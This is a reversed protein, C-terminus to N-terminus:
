ARIFANGERMITEDFVMLGVGILSSSKQKEGEIVQISSAIEPITRNDLVQKIRNTLYNVANRSESGVVICHPHLASAITAITSAFPEFSEELLSKALRDGDLAAKFITDAHIRKNSRLCSEIGRELWQDAKEEIARTGVLSELCGSAGCRCISGGNDCVTHGVEGALGSGRWVGDKTVLAIGLSAGYDIYIMSEGNRRHEPKLFYQAVAATRTRDEVLVPLGTKQSVLGALPVRQWSPFTSSRIIEGHECDVMGPDAVGVGIIDISYQLTLRYLCDRAMVAVQEPTEITKKSEFSAIIEGNANILASTLTKQDYNISFVAKKNPDIYLSVPARGLGIKMPEGETVWGEKMLERVADSVLNPRVKLDLAMKKRYAGSNKWIFRLFKINSV